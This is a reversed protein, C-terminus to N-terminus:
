PVESVELDRLGVREPAWAAGQGSSIDVQRGVLAGGQGQVVEVVDRACLDGPLLRDVRHSDARRGGTGLATEANVVAVDAAAVVSSIAGM